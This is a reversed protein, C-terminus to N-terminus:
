TEAASWPGPVEGTTTPIWTPFRGQPMTMASFSHGPTFTVADLSMMSGGPHPVQSTETMETSSKELPSAGPDDLGDELPLPLSLTGPVMRAEELRTQLLLFWALLGLSDGGPLAM